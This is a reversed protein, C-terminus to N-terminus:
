ILERKLNGLDMFIYVYELAKEYPWHCGEIIADLAQSPTMYHELCDLADSFELCETCQCCADMDKHAVTSAPLNNKYEPALETM